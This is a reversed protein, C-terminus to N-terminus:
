SLPHQAPQESIIRTTSAIKIIAITCEADDEEEEEGGGGGDKGGDEEGGDEGDIDEGVALTVPWSIRAVRAEYAPRHMATSPSVTTVASHVPALDSCHVVSSAPRMTLLSPRHISGAPTPPPCGNSTVDQVVLSVCFHCKALPRMMDPSSHRVMQPGYVVGPVWIWVQFVWCSGASASSIYQSSAYLEPRTPM